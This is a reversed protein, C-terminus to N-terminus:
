RGVRHGPRGCWGGNPGNGCRDPRRGLEWRGNWPQRCPPNSKTINIGYPPDTVVADFRDLTPLIERCDGMYLTVGEALHEVRNSM